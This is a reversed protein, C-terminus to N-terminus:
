EPLVFEWEWKIVHLLIWPLLKVGEKRKFFGIMTWCSDRGVSEVDTKKAKVVVVM